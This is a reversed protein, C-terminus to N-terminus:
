INTAFDYENVDLAIERIISTWPESKLKAIRENAEKEHEEPYIDIHGGCCARVAIILISGM